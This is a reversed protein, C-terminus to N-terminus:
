RDSIVQTRSPTLSGCEPCFRDREELKTGCYECGTWFISTKRLFRKLM